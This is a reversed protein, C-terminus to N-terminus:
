FVYGSINTESTTTYRGGVPRATRSFNTGTHNFTALRTVGNINLFAQLRQSFDVRPPGTIAGRRGPYNDTSFVLRIGLSPVGDQVVIPVNTLTVPAPTTFDTISAVLRTNGASGYTQTGDPNPSSSLVFIDLRPNALVTDIGPQLSATRLYTVTVTNATRTARVPAPLTSIESCSSFLALAALSALFYQKM